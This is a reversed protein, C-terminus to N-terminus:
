ISGGLKGSLNLGMEELGNGILKNLWKMGLIQNEIFDWIM